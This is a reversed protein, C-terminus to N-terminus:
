SNGLSESCLRVSVYIYGNRVQAKVYVDKNVLGLLGVFATVELRPAKAMANLVTHGLVALNHFFDHDRNNQDINFDSNSLRNKKLKFVHHM